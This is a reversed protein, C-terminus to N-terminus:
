LKHQPAELREETVSGAKLMWQEQGRLRMVLLIVLGLILWVAVMWPAYAVPPIPWPVLSSYGVFILAV